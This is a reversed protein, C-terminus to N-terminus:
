RAGGSPPPPLLPPKDQRSAKRAIEVKAVLLSPSSSSVPVWGSEAGCYGNFITLDDAAALIQSLSTLPTGEINAGRILQERGDPFVKYVMVPHVKFSQVGWRRTTTYGGAVRTFRLGYPKGQRKVEEVLRRKLEGPPLTRAPHVVLNGQRAVVPMGAQGRGHGNSRNFGRAPSRSMLFGALKGQQVLSARQSLVGEDDVRYFGNLAEGNISRITPDDYVEIFDPMVQKGIKKAFTQGEEDDKQRHGEVRHGFIEHFFVGAAHGDLIAPGAYPEALPARRLALLDDIVQRIRRRIEQDGPLKDPASVDINESRALDMGDDTRASGYIGLRVYTRSVQVASGESNTLYRNEVRVQLTVRSRLLDPHAAFLRSYGKLREKWRATDIKLSTPRELYRVQKERSFDDSRDDAQAKVAKNGVVHLYGELASKYARDTALWLTPRLVARDDDLPLLWSGRMLRRFAQFRDGRIPHTNDLKHNGVRVEVDLTRARREHADQLAGLSCEIRSEALDTVRYSLFYPRPAPLSRLKKMQRKGEQQM